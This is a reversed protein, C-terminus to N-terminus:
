PTVVVFQYSAASESRGDSHPIDLQLKYQGRTLRAAPLPVIVVDVESGSTDVTPNDNTLVTNGGADLLVARYTKSLGKPLKAHLEITQIDRPVNVQQPTGGERTQIAPELFVALSPGRLTSSSRFSIWVVVIVLISFAAAIPIRYASLSALFSPQPEAVVVLDDVEPESREQDVYSRWAKAVKFQQQRESSNMFFSEFAVSEKESLEGSLYEDILEDEVISIEDFARTDTILHKELSEGQEQSLLGLLWLRVDQQIKTQEQM